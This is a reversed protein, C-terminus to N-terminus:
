IYQCIIIKKAELDCNATILNKTLRVTLILYVTIDTFQSLYSYSLSELLFHFLIKPNKIVLKHCFNLRHYM